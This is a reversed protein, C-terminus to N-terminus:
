SVRATRPSGPLLSRHRLRQGVVLQLRKVLAHRTGAQEDRQAVATEEVRELFGARERAVDRARAAAARARDHPLDGREAAAGAEADCRVGLLDLLLRDRRQLRRDRQELRLRGFLQLRVAREHELDGLGNRIGGRAPFRGLCLGDALDM